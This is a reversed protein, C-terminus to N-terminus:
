KLWEKPPDASVWCMRRTPASGLEEYAGIRETTVAVFRSIWASAGTSLEGVTLEPQDWPGPVV